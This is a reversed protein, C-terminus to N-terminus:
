FNQAKPRWSGFQRSAAVYGLDTNEEEFTDADIEAQSKEYSLAEEALPEPRKALWNTIDTANDEVTNKAMGILDVEGGTQLTLGMELGLRIARLELLLDKNTVILSLM